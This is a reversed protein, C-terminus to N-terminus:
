HHVVTSQLLLTTLPSLLCLWRTLKEAFQMSGGGWTRKFHRRRVTYDRWYPVEEEGGGEVEASAADESMRDTLSGSVPTERLLSELESMKHFLKM